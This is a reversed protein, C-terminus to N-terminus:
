PVAPGIQRMVTRVRLPYDPNPNYVRLKEHTSKGKYYKSEALREAVEHIGHRVSEFRTECSNWGFINNNKYNRGASSEVVSIGPLLRWDLEHRDAARLFDEAMSSVPSQRGHLYSKLRILRPDNEYNAELTESSTHAISYPLALLGGL